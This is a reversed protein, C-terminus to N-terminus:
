RDDRHVERSMRVFEDQDILRFQVQDGPKLLFPYPGTKRYLPIPTRGILRWGGPTATPYIGTQRDAIGVSGAPVRTRPTSLRPMALREPVLGLYPFGPSFGLMYVRYRLSAHLAIAEAPSLRAFDAIDELDPGWEGGYLVPIMHLAGHSKPESPIRPLLTKLSDALTDWKWHLPDFHVTTSRYTPVIDVIGSWGQDAVTNAFALVRANIGPNIEDGFEVSLASDGLPVIRFTEGFTPNTHASQNSRPM